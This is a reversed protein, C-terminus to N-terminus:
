SNGWGDHGVQFWVGDGGKFGGFEGRGLEDSPESVDRGVHM